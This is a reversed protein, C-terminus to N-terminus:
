PKRAAGAKPCRCLMKSLYRVLRGSLSLIWNENDRGGDLEAEALQFSLWSLFLRHAHFNNCQMPAGPM